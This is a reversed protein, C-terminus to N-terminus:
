LASSSFEAGDFGWGLMVIWIAYSIQAIHIVMKSAKRSTRKASAAM